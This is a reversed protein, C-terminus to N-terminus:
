PASVACLTAARTLVEQDLTVLTLQRASALWVYAADAARLRARVAVGRIRPVRAVGITASEATRAVLSAVYQDIDAPLWGVRALSAAVEITFIAPVAIEDAGTLVLTLRARSAAHAPEKPRVAAIAVSADLVYRM